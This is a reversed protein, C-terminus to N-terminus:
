RAEPEGKADSVATLQRRPPVKKGSTQTASATTSLPTESIAFISLSM